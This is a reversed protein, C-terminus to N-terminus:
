PKYPLPLLAPPPQNVQKLANVISHAPDQNLCEVGSWDIFDVLDVQGRPVPTAPAPAPAAAAAAAANTAAAMAQPSAPPNAHSESGQSTAAAVRHPQTPPRVPKYFYLRLSSLRRTEKWNESPDRDAKTESILTSEM